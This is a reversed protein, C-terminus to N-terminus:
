CQIILSYICIKTHVPLNQAHKSYNRFNLNLKNALVIISDRTVGDLVTDGLPATIITEDIVFFLNMTGSEEM